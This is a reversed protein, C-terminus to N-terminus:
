HESSCSNLPLSVKRMIKTAIQKKNPYSNTPLYWHNARKPSFFHAHHMKHLVQCYTQHQDEDTNCSINM